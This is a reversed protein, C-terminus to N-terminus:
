RLRGAGSTRRGCARRSVWVSRTFDTRASRECPSVTALAGKWAGWRISQGRPRGRAFELPRRLMPQDVPKPSSGLWANPQPRRTSRKAHAATSNPPSPMSTTAPTDPCTLAKPSTSACCATPTRTAAANGPAAHRDRVQPSQRHDPRRGLPRPHSPGRSRGSARQDDGHRPVHPTTTHHGTPPPRRLARGTRLARTLERRLEGRGQVNLAHYITEHTERMEPRDPFRARLANSIQEPSWRMTLHGQVFERLEPNQAIKGPKPRPRRADARAQAAHAPVPWQRPAPQPPSGPQHDLASSGTRDRHHSPVGERAAPRRNPHARVGASLSFPRGLAAGSLDPIGGEAPGQESLTPVESRITPRSVPRLM